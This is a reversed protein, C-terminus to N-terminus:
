SRVSQSLMGSRELMDGQAGQLHESGQQDLDLGHMM